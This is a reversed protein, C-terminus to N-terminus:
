DKYKYTIYNKHSLEYHSYTIQGVLQWVTIIILWYPSNNGM